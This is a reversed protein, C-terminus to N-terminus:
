VAQRKQAVVKKMREAVQNASGQTINEKARKKHRGLTEEAHAAGRRGPEQTREGRRGNDGSDGM